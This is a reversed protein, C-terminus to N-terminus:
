ASSPHPATPPLRRLIRLAARVVELRKGEDGTALRGAEVAQRLLCPFCELDIRV